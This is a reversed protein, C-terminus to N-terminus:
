TIMTIAGCRTCNKGGLFIAGQFDTLTCQLRTYTGLWTMPQYGPICCSLGKFRWTLTGTAASSNADLPPVHLRSSPCVLVDKAGTPSVGPTFPPPSSLEILIFSTNANSPLNVTLCFVMKVKTPGLRVSSWKLPHLITHMCFTLKNRFMTHFLTSYQITTFAPSSLTLM